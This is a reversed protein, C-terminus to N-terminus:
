SWMQLMGRVCELTGKVNVDVTGIPRYWLGFGIDKAALHVCTDPAEHKLIDLIRGTNLVDAEYIESPANNNM